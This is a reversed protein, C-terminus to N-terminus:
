VGQTVGNQFHWWGLMLMPSCYVDCHMDLTVSCTACWMDCIDCMVPFYRQVGQTVGKWFHWWWWGDVMLMPSWFVECPMDHTMDCMVHWLHWLDSSFLGPGRMKRPFTQLPSTRPPQILHLCVDAGGPWFVSHHSGKHSMNKSIDGGCCWCPVAICTMPCRMHWMVCWMDCMVHWHWVDSSFLGPDRTHCWKRFTVVGADVHSKLLCWLACWM